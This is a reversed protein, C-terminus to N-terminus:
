VKLVLGYFVYPIGGNIFSLKEPTLGFKTAVSELTDFPKVVYYNNPRTIIIIDGKQLEKKLNNEYILDFVPVFFKQSVSIISDGDLVRYFIKKM